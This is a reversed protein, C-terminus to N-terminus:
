ITQWEFWDPARKAVRTWNGDLIHTVSYDEEHRTGRGAAQVISLAANWDLWQRGGRRKVRLRVVPDSFSLFPVKAIVTFRCEDDPFDLGEGWSPSIVVTGNESGKFQRISTARDGRPVFVREDMGARSLGKAITEAHKWSATHIIGKQGAHEKLVRVIMELQKTYDEPTSHYSLRPADKYFFVPRTEPPFVHPYTVFEYDKIALERALVAAGETDGITASILVTSRAHYDLLRSSYPGPVVPRAFFKEGPRSEIYWEAEGADGLTAALAGLNTRWNKASRQLKIDKASTLPLLVAECKSAWQAARKLMVPAGGLALPFDPLGFWDRTRKGMEVAVLSSLVTPLRHCEDIFLDAEENLIGRWWRAFNAYHFNLVRARSSICEAKAIEYPCAGSYECESPKRYKCESRFPKTGYIAEFTAVHEPHVCVNPLRGQGWVSKFMSLTSQYQAQLDTTALLVTTGPRFHSVLAPIGSKGTGTPSQCLLVGGPELNLAKECIEKQHPRWSDYPLGYDGPNDSLEMGCM